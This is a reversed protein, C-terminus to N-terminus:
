ASLDDFVMVTFNTDFAAHALARSEIESKWGGLRMGVWENAQLEIRVRLALLRDVAKGESWNMKKGADIMLRAVRM